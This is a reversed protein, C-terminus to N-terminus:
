MWVATSSIRYIINDIGIGYFICNLLQFSRYGLHARQKIQQRAEATCFLARWLKLLPLPKFFNSKKYFKVVQRRSKYKKAFLKM